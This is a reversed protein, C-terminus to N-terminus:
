RVCAFGLHRRACKACFYLKSLRNSPHTLARSRTADCNSEGDRIISNGLKVIDSPWDLDKSTTLSRLINNTTQFLQFKKSGFLAPCPPSGALTPKTKKNKNILSFKGISPGRHSTGFKNNINNNNHLCARKNAAFCFM